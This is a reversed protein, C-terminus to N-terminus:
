HCSALAMPGEGDRGDNRRGGQEQGGNASLLVSLRLVWRVPVVQFPVQADRGEVYGLDLMGFPHQVFPPSVWLDPIAVQYQELFHRVEGSASGTDGLRDGLYHIAV